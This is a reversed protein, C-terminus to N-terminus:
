PVHLVMLALHLIIPTPRCYLFVTFQVSLHFMVHAVDLAAVVNRSLFREEKHDLRLSDRICMESGM